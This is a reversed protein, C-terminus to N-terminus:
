QAAMEINCEFAIIPAVSGGAGSVGFDNRNVEGTLQFGVVDNGNRGKTSGIHTAVLTVEKTNGRMTLNGVVEYTNGGTKKFSTSEFSLTPHNEVDFFDASRLHRDRPAVNTNISQVEASFTVKAGSFDSKSGGEVAGEFKDFRGHVFSIGNHKASFLISSHAPDVKWSQAKLQSVTGLAIVGLLMSLFKRMAM